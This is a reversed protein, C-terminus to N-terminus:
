SANKAAKESTVYIVLKLHDKGESQCGQYLAPDIVFRRTAPAETTTTTTTSTTTVSARTDATAPAGFLFEFLSQGQVTAFQQQFLIAVLLLCCGSSSSSSRRRPSSQSSPSLKM